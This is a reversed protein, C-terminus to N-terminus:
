TKIATSLAETPASSRSDLPQLWALLGVAVAFAVTGVVILLTPSPANTWWWEAGNAPNLGGGDIGSTYRRVNTYISLAFSVTVALAIITRRPRTWLSEADVSVSAVGLAIVILPLIYRPQVETGVIARSQMLLIFPVAWLAAFAAAVAIVRRASVRRLGVVVIAGAVATGIFGVAAPMVTDLWGLGSGGLAGSWLEPVDFANQLLQMRSLPPNENRLGSALYGSQGASAYFFLGTAAIVMAAGLPVIAMRLHRLGLLLGLAAGFIAFIGADARAGGGIVAAVAAIAALGWMRRGTTQTAGYVSIWVVSASMLAWSSPNTSAYVFVGLPVATAISSLVLAPRLRRPLLWFTTTVLAVCLAVNVMRMTVVAAAIDPGVFLSMTAYFVPPYVPGTDVRSTERMGGGDPNWCAASQTPDYAYCDATTLATPVLRTTDEDTMECIGPREGAGCWISALHFDDDPSSGVPSAVAWAALSILIALPVAVAVLLPRLPRRRKM